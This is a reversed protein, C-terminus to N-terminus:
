LRVPYKVFLVVTAIFFVVALLCFLWYAFGAGFNDTARSAAGYTIAALVICLMALFAFIFTLITM